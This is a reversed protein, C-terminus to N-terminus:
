ARRAACSRIAATAAWSTTRKSSAGTGARRGRRDLRARGRRDQEIQTATWGFRARMGALTAMKRRLVDEVCYQPLRENDQFYYPRVLERGAPAHWYDSMLSGYATLEGIPYGPPM